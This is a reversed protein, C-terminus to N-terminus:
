IDFKKCIMTACGKFLNTVIKKTQYLFDENFKSISLVTENEYHKFYNRIKPIKKSNIVKRFVNMKRQCFLQCFKFLNNM